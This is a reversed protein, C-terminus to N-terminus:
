VERPVDGGRAVANIIKLKEPADRFDNALDAMIEAMEEPEERRAQALRLLRYEFYWDSGRLLEDWDVAAPPFTGPDLRFGQMFLRRAAECNDALLAADAAVYVLGQHNPFKEALANWFAAEVAPDVDLVYGESGGCGHLPKLLPFVDDDLAMSQSLIASLARLLEGDDAERTRSASAVLGEVAKGTASRPAKAAGLCYGYLERDVIADSV